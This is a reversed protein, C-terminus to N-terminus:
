IDWELEWLSVLQLAVCCLGHSLLMRDREVTTCHARDRLLLRLHAFQNKALVM